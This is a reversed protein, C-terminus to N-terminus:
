ETCNENTHQAIYTEIVNEIREREDDDIIAQWEAINSYILGEWALDM